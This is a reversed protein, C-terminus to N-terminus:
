HGALGGGPAGIPGMGGGARRTGLAADFSLEALGLAVRPADNIM